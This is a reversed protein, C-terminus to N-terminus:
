SGPSEGAFVKAKRLFISVDLGRRLMLRDKAERTVEAELVTGDPLALEARVVPGLVIVQRVTAQPLDPSLELLEVDHPRM